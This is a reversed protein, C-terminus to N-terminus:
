TYSNKREHPSRGPRQTYIHVNPEFHTALRNDFYTVVIKSAPLWAIFGVHFEKSIKHHRLANRILERRRLIYNRHANYPDTNESSIQAWAMDLRWRSDSALSSEASM